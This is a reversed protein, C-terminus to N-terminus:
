RVPRPPGTASSGTPDAQWTLGPRNLTAWIASGWCPYDNVETLVQPHAPIVSFVTALGAATSLEDRAWVVPANPDGHAWEASIDLFLSVRHGRGDASSVAASLFGFPVSQRRLDTPEIPSLFDVSLRIGAALWTFRSRTATVELGAQPLLAPAAGTFGTPAGLFVYPVGDVRVLGAIAKVWGNWFTPWTGALTQSRVWTSVYPQRVILPTAPPRIPTM